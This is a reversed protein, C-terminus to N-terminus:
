HVSHLLSTKVRGGCEAENVDQPHSPAAGSGQVAGLLGRMAPWKAEPNTETRAQLKWLTQGESCAKLDICQFQQVTNSHSMRACHSGHLRAHYSQM